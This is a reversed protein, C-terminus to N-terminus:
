NKWFEPTLLILVSFLELRGLLMEFSLAWKASAPLTAYNGAPGVIEGLGPGVSALAQASSSLSTILDLGTGALILAFFFTIVVYTFLFIVISYGVEDNIRRGNYVVLTVRHPRILRALFAKIVLWAIQLRYTKVGGTTSGSCGGLFTLLLCIGIAANGWLTYDETAFGTTTIISVTNFTARRIIESTSGDQNTGLVIAMLLIAVLLIKLFGQVQEDRFAIMPNRVISGYVVVFPLSGLLMFIICIWQLAPSQFFGFSSDHTSFGGTSVTTLAHCLADFPTMGFAAYAITCSVLLGLYITAIAISLEISRGFIKESRDSSETLFLQMGGIRLFPLIIIATVVIGLGGIAQLVSRWLLIGRPLNDLKILVTAGTTTLGSIAEFYADTFNLGVGLFPIGAFAAIVIWALSTLLFGTKPTIQTNTNQPATLTLFFGVSFTLAASATFVQWDPNNDGVDVLAPLLMAAALACLGFGVTLVIPRTDIM